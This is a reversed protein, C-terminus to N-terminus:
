QKTVELFVHKLGVPLFIISDLNIGDFLHVIDIMTFSQPLWFVMEGAYDRHIWGLERARKLVQAIQKSKILLLQHAAIQSRLAEISGEVLIHGQHLIGVRDCLYEVEDLLHTTMLITMGGRRLREILSWVDHRSELDLGATPEDLILLKPQHIMAIALSLRRQMGGSLAEALTHAKGDLGVANLCYITRSKLSLGSIGYLNGFFELHEVCTLSRYLLNEQPSIGILRRPAKSNPLGDIFIQGSDPNLLQCLINILTTKGAGNTGLLGYIEGESLDLDLQDLVSIDGYSKCISDIVLM